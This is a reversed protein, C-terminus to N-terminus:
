YKSVDPFHLILSCSSVVMCEGIIALIFFASLVLDKLHLYTSPPIYFSIAVQLLFFFFPRVTELLVLDTIGSM